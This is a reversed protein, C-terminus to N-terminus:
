YRDEQRMALADLMIDDAVQADASPEIYSWENLTNLGDFVVRLLVINELSLLKTSGNHVTSTGIIIV